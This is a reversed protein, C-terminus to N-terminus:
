VVVAAYYLLLTYHTGVIPKGQMARRVSAFQDGLIKKNAEIEDAADAAKEEGEDGAADTNKTGSKVTEEPM